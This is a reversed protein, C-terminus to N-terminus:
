EGTKAAAAASGVVFVTRRNKANAAANRSNDLPQTQGYGKATLRDAPVGKDVLAKTVTEARQQSLNQNIDASGVLDTHGQVEVSTGACPKLAAAIEDLVANSDAALYASGSQFNITKGEMLKNVDGQCAAVAEATAPVAAETPATATEAPLAAGNDVACGANYTLWAVLATLLAGILAKVPSTM